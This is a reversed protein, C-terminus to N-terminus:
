EVEGLLKCYWDGKGDVWLWICEKCKVYKVDDIFNRHNPDCYIWGENLNTPMYKENKYDEENVM